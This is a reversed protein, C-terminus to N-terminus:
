THTYTHTHSHAYRHQGPTSDSGPWDPTTLLRDGGGATHGRFLELRGLRKGLADLLQGDDQLPGAVGGVEGAEPWVQLQQGGDVVVWTPTRVGGGERRGEWRGEM